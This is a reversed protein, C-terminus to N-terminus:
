SGMSIDIGRSTLSDHNAHLSGLQRRIRGENKPRRLKGGNVSGKAIFVSTGQDSENRKIRHEGGGLGGKGGGCIGVGNMKKPVKRRGIKGQPYGENDRINSGVTSTKRKGIASQV